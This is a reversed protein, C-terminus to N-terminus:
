AADPVVDFAFSIREGGATFPITRHLYHSPALLVLAERPAIRMPAYPALAMGPPPGFEICGEGEGDASFSAPLRFYCVGSLWGGPHAHWTEFAGASQLLGWCNLRAKAPRARLWRDPAGVPALGRLFRDVIAQLTAALARFLEPRPGGILHHVRRSGRNADARSLRELQLPHNALADALAACFAQPTEHDAAAALEARGIRRPDFLLGAAEEGRGAAALARGWDLWLQAHGVGRESLAECAALAEETRGARRLLGMLRACAHHHTPAIQLLSRYTREAVDARNLRELALARQYLVAPAACSAGAEEVIRLADAHRGLEDFCRALGARAQDDRPEVRLLRALTDAAGHFDCEDLQVGALRLLLKPSDPSKALASRLLPAAQAGAAQLEFAPKAWAIDGM